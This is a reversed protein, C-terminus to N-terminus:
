FSALIGRVYGVSEALGPMPDKGDKEFEFSATGRYNEKALTRLFRPIDIVGRGAEVPGGDKTAATVDKLHVDLLRGACEEAADAPDVGSRQCHGVDLCLGVRPDLSRVKDLVSRPTPYLPDGPGHNHIALKIGSERVKREALPLLGHDPAGVIVEMGGAKAYTFAREVEGPTKMYVVGCGYPVLGAERIKKVAAAIETKASELPLHVDKLCIRRLGVRLTMDIAAELGFERFTYSAVGLEFPYQRPKVAQGWSEHSPGRPEGPAPSAPLDIAGAAWVAATGGAAREIFKRRTITKM